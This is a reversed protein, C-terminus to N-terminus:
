EEVDVFPEGDHVSADIDLFMKVGVYNVWASNLLEIELHWSIMIIIM